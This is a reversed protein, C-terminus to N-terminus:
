KLRMFIYERDSYKTIIKIIEHRNLLDLIENLEKIQDEGAKVYLEEGPKVRKLNTLIAAVVGGCTVAEKELDITIRKKESSMKDDGIFIKM